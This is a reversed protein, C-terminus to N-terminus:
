IEFLGGLPKTEIYKEFKKEVRKNAKKRSIFRGSFYENGQLKGLDLLELVKGLKKFVDKVSYDEVFQLANWLQFFVDNVRFLENETFYNVGIKAEALTPFENKFNILGFHIDDVKSRKVILERAIEHTAGYYVVDTLYAIHKSDVKGRSNNANKLITGMAKHHQTFKNREERTARLLKNLKKTDQSINSEIYFGNERISPLIEKTVKKQFPKAIPKRSRMILSYLGSESIITMEQDGGFTMMKFSSREDEDLDKISEGVNPNKKDLLIQLVDKAVFWVSKDEQNVVTRVSNSHGQFPFDFNILKKM